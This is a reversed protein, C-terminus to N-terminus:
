FPLPSFVKHPNTCSSTAAHSGGATGPNNWSENCMTQVVFCDSQIANQSGDGFDINTKQINGQFQFSNHGSATISSPIYKFIAVKKNDYIDNQVVLNEFYTTDTVGDRHILMTYSTLTDTEIIKVNGESITFGFQDELESRSANNDIILSILNSFREDKSLEKFKVETIKIKRSSLFNEEYLDESCGIFTFLLTVVLLRTLLKIRTKMYNNILEM